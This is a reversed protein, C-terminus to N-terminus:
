FGLQSLLRRFRRGLAFGATLFTDSSMIERLTEGSGLLGSEFGL